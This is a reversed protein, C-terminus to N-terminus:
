KKYHPIEEVDKKENRIFDSNYPLKAVKVRINMQRTGPTGWILTLETGEKAYAPDIFGLSIMSNYHYSVIRGSSIGVDKGDCLIRDARYAAEGRFSNSKVTLESEAAISECAEEGPQFQTSFVAGVDEANWELTVSTRPPNKSLEELAERGRFEHNYKVLFGWGVDYPTVFRTQLDDGVSGKLKRNINFMSNQPNEYMYKAMDAGSEFWPLPYHLHINPFGAETHNFLNYAHMGLKRAGFKKGSEWVQRYVEDFEAMPGHIEYALNGSMGLRVIEVEKGDMTEKRHTAFKIDHLDAKFADELIELSKEGSIQIFYEKGTMEEGTVNMGSTKLFYDIPPNLWYTRYRDEAIRIVVGDTLVQGKENCIVAHRLGKMTLNTFDNVCISNLFKVADPGTVDYIPSIMLTTGIWASKRYGDIEYEVGGFEYPVLLGPAMQFLLTATEMAPSFQQYLGLNENGTKLQFQADQKNAEM